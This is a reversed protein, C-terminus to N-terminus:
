LLALVRQAVEPSQTFGGAAHGVCVFVRHSEDRLDLQQIAPVGSPLAPRICVATEVNRLDTPGDMFFRSVESAFADAIPKGLRCAEDYPREGVWGYGGSLIMSQGNPTVNIFNVPEAGYVKFPHRYGPNPVKAWCGLVGQLLVGSRALLETSMTSVGAAFIVDRGLGTLDTDVRRSWRLEVGQHELWTLLRACLTRVNYATGAVLFSGCITQDALRPRLPELEDPLSLTAATVNVFDLDREAAQESALDEATACVITLYGLDSTPQFVDPLEQDLEAWAELGAANIESVTDFNAGHTEPSRAVRQFEDLWAQESKSLREGALCNWGGDAAAKSILDHHERSTWPGTETLSIHRADMGSYTAGFRHNADPQTRPDPGEDLVIVKRNPERRVSKYAIMLGVIGAGVISLSSEHQSM